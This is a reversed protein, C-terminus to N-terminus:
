NFKNLGCKYFAMQSTLELLLIHGSQSDFDMGKDEVGVTTCKAEVHPVSGALLFKTTQAIAVVNM